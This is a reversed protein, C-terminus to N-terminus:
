DQYGNEKKKLALLMDHAVRLDEPAAHKAADFLIRLERNEFIEQAIEVTEPDSYYGGSADRAADSTDEMLDARSCGFIDCMVDIKDMRPSKIGACWNYVSTTGVGLRKALETQTMKSRNLYFKLRKSFVTNFDQEPM